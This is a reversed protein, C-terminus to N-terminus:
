VLGRYDLLRFPLLDLPVAVAVGAVVGIVLGTFFFVFVNGVVKGYAKGFSLNRLADLFRQYCRTM